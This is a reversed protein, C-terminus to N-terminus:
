IEQGQNWKGNRTNTRELTQACRRSRSAFCFTSVSKGTQHFVSLPGTSHECYPEKFLEQKKTGRPLSQSNSTGREERKAMWQWLSIWERLIKLHWPEDCLPLWSQGCIINKNNNAMQLTNTFHPRFYVALHYFSLHCFLNRLGLM